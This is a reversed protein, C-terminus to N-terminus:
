KFYAVGNRFVQMGAGEAPLYKGKRKALERKLTWGDENTLTMFREPHPMIGMVRGSPDTLAAIDLMAGNPNIPSKGMAPSGDEHVYRFAIQDNKQIAKLIEPPAVLKGEGHAIPAHLLKVGHTWVCKKSSSKLWVWRDTYRANDNRDFVVQRESYRGGIAPVLGLNALMQCGNCIGIVLKDSRVFNFIFEGLNNKIRNALANGAGTDDGYSFGGPIALIQFDDLKVIGDILDNVHVVRSVGGARQFVFATEEECNIGYGTLVLVHPKM